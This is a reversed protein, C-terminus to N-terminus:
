KDVLSFLYNFLMRKRLMSDDPIEDDDDEEEEEEENSISIDFPQAGKRRGKKKKKDGYIHLSHYFEDTDIQGQSNAMVMSFADIEVQNLGPHWADLMLTIRRKDGRHRVEHRFSDDFM